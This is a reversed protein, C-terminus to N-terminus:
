KEGNDGNMTPNPQNGKIIIRYKMKYYAKYLRTVEKRKRHVENLTVYSAQVAQLQAHLQVHKKEFRTDFHQFSTFIRNPSVTIFYISIQLYKTTFM